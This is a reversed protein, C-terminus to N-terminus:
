KFVRTIRKLLYHLWRKDTPNQIFFRLFYFPFQYAKFSSLEMLYQTTMAFKYDKRGILNPFEYYFSRILERSAAYQKLKNSTVSNRDDRRDLLVLSQHIGHIDSVLCFRLIYSWDISISPYHKSFYLGHNVHVAKRFMMASNVVKIQKKYNLLFMEEKKPYQKGSVLMGPFRMGIKTGDWFDSIGSVLGIQPMTDLVGVQLALRDPYYFDDQEAVAIYDGQASAVLRNMTPGLGLNSDNILVTTKRFKDKFSNVIELSNDKSGDICAVLEFDQFSQDLLSELTKALTKEGNYIPLIVSVKLNM